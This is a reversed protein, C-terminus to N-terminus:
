RSPYRDPPRGAPRRDRCGDVLPDWPIRQNKTSRGTKEELEGKRSLDNFSVNTEACGTRDPAETTQTPIRM